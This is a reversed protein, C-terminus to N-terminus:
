RGGTAMYRVHATINVAHDGLREYFRGVLALEIAVPTSLKGSSIESTLSVHLDDLEDDADDLRRTAEGDRAAYADTAQHWMEVSVQGMSELLGRVRSTLDPTLGRMARSAIHAALDASRELEPVIRLVALLFRLDSAAPAEHGLQRLVLDEIDRHTADIQTDRAILRRAGERDGSLLADTAGALCQAVLAFLGLVQRDISDLERRFSQDAAGTM